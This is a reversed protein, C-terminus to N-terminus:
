AQGDPGTEVVMATRAAPDVRIVTPPAMCEDCTANVLLTPGDRWRGRGQHIHGYVHLLPRVARVRALLDECGARLRAFAEHGPGVSDGFGRPPGHTVLVDVGDPIAAWREALPAGRPLNFAWDNYAPQWPSGWFRLGLRTVGSDQLYDFGALLRRAEDPREELCREHNGAVVIKHRHPLRRFFELAGALEALSGGRTMDGAHVLVDGDPIALEDHYLHTDAVAVITLM